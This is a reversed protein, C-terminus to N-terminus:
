SAQEPYSFGRGNRPIVWLRLACLVAHLEADLGTLDCGLSEENRFSCHLKEASCRKIPYGHVYVLFMPAM